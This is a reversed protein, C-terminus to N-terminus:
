EIFDCAIHRTFTTQKSKLVVCCGAAPLALASSVKHAVSNLKRVEHTHIIPPLAVPLHAQPWLALQHCLQSYFESCQVADRQRWIQLCIPLLRSLKRHDNGKHTLKILGRPAWVNPWVNNQTYRDLHKQTLNVNSDSSQAFYSGEKIHSPSWGIM